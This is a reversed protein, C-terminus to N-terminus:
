EGREHETPLRGVGRVARPTSAPIREVREISAAAVPQAPIEVRDSAIAVHEATVAVKPAPSIGQKALALDRDTLRKIGWQAVDVGEQVLIFSGLVIALTINVDIQRVLCVLLVVVFVFAEMIGMVVRMPTTPANSLDVSGIQPMWHPRSM